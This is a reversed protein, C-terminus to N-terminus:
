YGNSKLWREMDYDYWDLFAGEGNLMISQVKEAIKKGISKDTGKWVVFHKKKIQVRVIYLYGRDINLYKIGTTSKSNPTTGKILTKGGQAVVAIFLGM